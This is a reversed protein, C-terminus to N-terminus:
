LYFGFWRYFYASMIQMVNGFVLLGMVILLAGSVVEVLRARRNIRRLAGQARDIGLACILFPVGLGLSYALLLTAGKTVTASAAAMTLIGSLVAGVCPTWGAGFIAGILVSSLYGWSRPVSRVDMRMERYLFPLTIVGMTHLGFAILIIGGAKQIYPLLDRVVYGILGVSAGLATFVLTFGLVFSLAHIVLRRRQAARAASSDPAQGAAAGAAIGTLYGLYGPVLPVVCPSAFSLLGAGAAIVLTLNEAGV